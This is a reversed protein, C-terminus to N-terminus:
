NTLSKEEAQKRSPNYFLPMASHFLIQINRGDIGKFIANAHIKGNPPIAKSWGSNDDKNTSSCLFKVKGDEFTRHVNHYKGTKFDYVQTQTIYNPQNLGWIFREEANKNIYNWSVELTSDDRKEIGDLELYIDPWNTEKEQYMRKTQEHTSLVPVEVSHKGDENLGYLKIRIPKLLNEPVKFQAWASIDRGGFIEKSWNEDSERNTTSCSPLGSLNVYIKYENGTADIITSKAVYNPQAFGWSFSQTMDENTNMYSWEVIMTKSNIRAVSEISIKIDTWITSLNKPFTKVVVPKKDDSDESAANNEERKILLFTIILVAFVVCSLRLWMPMKISSNTDVPNKSM